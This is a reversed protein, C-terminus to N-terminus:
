QLAGGRAHLREVARTLKRKASVIFAKAGSANTLKLLRTITDLPMDGAYHLTFVNRETEDLAATLLARLNRRLAENSVATEPDIGASEITDLVDDTDPHTRQNRRSKVANLCENRMISYLWTSFKSSGSFSDLHRWAKAFVEQGLDAASDRDGTIRFCWRGVREYYRQFLEDTLERRAQGRESRCSAVLAEDSLERLDM